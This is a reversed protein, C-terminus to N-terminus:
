IEKLTNRIRTYVNMFSDNYWGPCTVHLTLLRNDELLAIHIRGRVIIDDYTVGRYNAYYGPQKLLTREATLTTSWEKYNVKGMADLQAKLDNKIDTEKYTSAVTSIQMTIQASYGDKQQAAPETLIYTGSQSDDVEYGLPAEFKLGLKDATYEGYSFTLTPRPTATPKDVPSIPIPTSGAYVANGSEDYMGDSFGEGDDEESAPDYGEPLAYPDETPASVPAGDLPSGQTQPQQQDVTPFQQQACGALLMAIIVVVALLWKKNM